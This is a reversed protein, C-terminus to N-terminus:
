NEIDEPSDPDDPETDLSRDVTYGEFPGDPDSEADYDMMEKFSSFYKIRRDDPNESYAKFDSLRESLEDKQDDRLQPGGYFSIDDYISDLLDLLSIKFEGKWLEKREYLMRGKRSYCAEKVIECEKHISFPIHSYHYVPSMSISYKQETPCEKEETFEIFNISAGEIGVRECFEDFLLRAEEESGADWFVRNNKQTKLTDYNVCYSAQYHRKSDESMPGWCCFDIVDEIYPNSNYRDKVLQLHRSVEARTLDNTELDAAEPPLSAETHFEDIQFCRSYRKIFEKLGEHKEVWQFLQNITIEDHIEVDSLIFELPNEVSEGKHNRLVIVENECTFHLSQKKGGGFIADMVQLFGLSYHGQFDPDKHAVIGDTELEDSVTLIREGSKEKQSRNPHIVMVDEDVFIRCRIEVPGSFVDVSSEWGEGFLTNALSALEETDKMASVLDDVTVGEEIETLNYKIFCVWSEEEPVEKWYSERAEDESAYRAVEDETDEQYVIVSGDDQKKFDHSGRLNSDWEYRRFGEKTLIFRM